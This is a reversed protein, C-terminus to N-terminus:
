WTCFAELNLGLSKLGGADSSRLPICSQPSRKERHRWKSESLGDKKGKALSQYKISQLMIGGTVQSKRKLHQEPFSDRKPHYPCNQAAPHGATLEERVKM